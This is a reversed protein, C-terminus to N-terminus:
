VKTKQKKNQVEANKNKRKNNYGTNNNKNGIKQNHHGQSNDKEDVVKQPNSHGQKRTGANPKTQQTIDENQLEQKAKNLAALELGRKKTALKDVSKQKQAQIKEIIVIKHQVNNSLSKRLIEKSLAEEEEDPTPKKKAVKKKLAVYPLGAKAYLRKAEDEKAEREKRAAEKKQEKEKVLESYKLGMLEKKLETDFLREEDEHEENNDNHNDDKGELPDETSEDLKKAERNVLSDLRSKQEPVYGEEEDDVFPSLHPPLVAGSSYEHVPLLIGVNISDFVWQPQIYERSKIGRGIPLERDVIQHTIRTDHEEYEGGSHSVKGCFSKIMFSLHVLPVERNIFFVLDKFLAQKHKGLEESAVDTDRDTVVEADIERPVEPHGGQEEAQSEDIDAVDTDSIKSLKSALTSIRKKDSDTPLIIVSKQARALAEKIKANKGEQEIKVASTAQDKAVLTLALEDGLAAAQENIAPPYELNLSTYLKFNVFGLMCIYFEVFNNILRNDIHEVDELAFEFPALWNITVGMIEAQYYIGKITVFVKRLSHSESVYALFERSLRLCEYVKEAPLYQNSRMRACVFVMCL